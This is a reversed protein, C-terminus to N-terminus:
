RARLITAVAELDAATDVGHGSTETTTEVRIRIGLYLARLQELAEAQKSPRLPVGHWRPDARGCSLRLPRSTPACSGARGLAFTAPCATAIECGPYPRAASISPSGKRTPSSRSWMPNAIDAANQVPTALTAIGARPEGDLLEAMRSLWRGPLLPEDGQLNVVITQEPWGLTEAM